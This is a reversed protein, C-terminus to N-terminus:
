PKAGGDVGQDSNKKHFLKRHVDPWFEDFVGGITAYGLAIASRSLTLVVGRDDEYVPRAPTTFTAPITRILTNGPYYANSIAGATFAGLVNAFNLTHGGKDKHCIVQQKLSYFLRRPFSGNGLRFYRPDEKFLAPYFYTNWFTASVEDALAAGYRKGYGEAGLGYAPFENEEQSLGAQLGVIGFMAPDLASRVFLHFKQGSTLPSANQRDTVGFDPIVGLVRNSQERREIAKEAESKSHAQDQTRTQASRVDPPETQQATLLQSLLLGASFIWWVFRSPIMQWLPGFLTFQAPSM